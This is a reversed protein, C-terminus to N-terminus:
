DSAFLWVTLIIGAIVLIGGGAMLLLSWDAKGAVVPDASASQYGVVGAVAVVAGMVAIISGALRYSKKKM